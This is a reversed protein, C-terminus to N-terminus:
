LRFVYWFPIEVSKRFLVYIKFIHQTIFSFDGGRGLVRYALVRPNERQFNVIQTGKTERSSVKGYSVGGIKRFLIKFLPQLFGVNTQREQVEV